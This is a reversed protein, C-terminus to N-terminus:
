TGRRKANEGRRLYELQRIGKNTLVWKGKEIGLPEIYGAKKLRGLRLTAWAYSMDFYNALETPSVIDEDDIYKLVRVKGIL